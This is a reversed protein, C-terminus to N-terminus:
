VKMLLLACGVILEDTAVVTTRLDIIEFPKSL